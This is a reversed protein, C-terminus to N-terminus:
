TIHLLGAYAPLSDNPMPMPTCRKTAFRVCGNDLTVPRGRVSDKGLVMVSGLRAMM